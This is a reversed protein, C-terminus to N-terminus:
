KGFHESVPVAWCRETPGPLWVLAARSGVGFLVAKQGFAEGWSRAQALSAGPVLLSEEAWEGSGNLAPRPILGAQLVCALLREQAARNAREPAQQADPNWATVIAWSGSAWRPVPGPIPSLRVREGPPGYLTALFAARLAPDPRPCTLARRGAAPRPGNM